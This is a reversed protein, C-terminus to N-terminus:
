TTSKYGGESFKFLIAKKASEEIITNKQNKEKPSKVYRNFEENETGTLVVPIEYGDELKNIPYKKIDIGEFGGVDKFGMRSM